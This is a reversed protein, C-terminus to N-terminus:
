TKTTPTHVLYDALPRHVQPNSECACATKHWLYLCDCFALPLISQEAFQQMFCRNASLVVALVEDKLFMLVQLTTVFNLTKKTTDSLRVIVVITNSAM